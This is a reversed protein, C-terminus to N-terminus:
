ITHRVLEISQEFECYTIFETFLAEQRPVVTTLEVVHRELEEQKSRLFALSRKTHDNLSRFSADPLLPRCLRDLLTSGAGPQSLFLPFHDFFSFFYGFVCGFLFVVLSFKIKVYFFPFFPLVTFFNFYFLFSM